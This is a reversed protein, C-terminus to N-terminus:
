DEMCLNNNEKNLDHEYSAKAEENDDYVKIKAKLVEIIKMLRKYASSEKNVFQQNIESKLPIITNTYIKDIIKYWECNNKFTRRYHMMVKEVINLKMDFPTLDDRLYKYGEIKKYNVPKIDGTLEESSFTALGYENINLIIEECKVNSVVRERSFSEAFGNEFETGLVTKFHKSTTEDDWSNFKVTLYKAFAKTYEFNIFVNYQNYPDQKNRKENREAIRRVKDLFRVLQSQSATGNNNTIRRGQELNEIMKYVEDNIYPKYYKLINYADLHIVKSSEKHSSFKGNRFVYEANQVYAKLMELFGHQLLRQPKDVVIENNVKRIEM